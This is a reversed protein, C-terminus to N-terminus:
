RIQGSDQYSSISLTAKNDVVPATHYHMLDCKETQRDQKHELKTSLRSSSVEDKTDLYMKLNDLDTEYIWTVPDLDLDYSCIPRTITLLYM